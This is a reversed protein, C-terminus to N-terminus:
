CEHPPKLSELAILVARMETSSADYKGSLFGEAYEPRAQACIARAREIPAIEERVAPPPTLAAELAGITSADPNDALHRLARASVEHLESEFADPTQRARDDHWVAARLLGPRLAEIENTMQPTRSPTWNTSGPM